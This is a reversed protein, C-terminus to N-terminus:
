ISQKRNCIARRKTIGQTLRVEVNGWGDYLYEGIVKGDLVVERVNNLIDRILEYNKGKYRIGSVGDKDYYYKLKKKGM